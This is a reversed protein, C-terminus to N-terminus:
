MIVCAEAHLKDNQHNPIVHLYPLLVLWFLMNDDPKVIIIDLTLSWCLDYSSIQIVGWVTHQQIAIEALDWWM